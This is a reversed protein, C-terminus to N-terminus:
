LRSLLYGVAAGVGMLGVGIINVKTDLSSVDQKVETRMGTIAGDIKHHVSEQCAKWCKEYSTDNALAQMHREVTAISETACATLTSKIERQKRKLEQDCEDRIRQELSATLTHYAANRLLSSDVVKEMESRLLDRDNHVSEVVAERVHRDFMALFARDTFIKDRIHDVAEKKRQQTQEKVEQRVHNNLLRCFTTSQFLLPAVREATASASASDDASM